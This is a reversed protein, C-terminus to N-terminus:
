SHSPNACASSSTLFTVERLPAPTQPSENGAETARGVRRAQEGGAGPPPLPILTGTQYPPAQSSSDVTRLGSGQSRGWGNVAEWGRTGRLALLQGRGGM